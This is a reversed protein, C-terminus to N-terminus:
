DDLISALCGNIFLEIFQHDNLFKIHSSRGIIRDM